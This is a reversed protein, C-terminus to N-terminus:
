RAPPISSDSSKDTLLIGACIEYKASAQLLKDEVQGAILLSGDFDVRALKRFVSLDYPKKYQDPDEFM